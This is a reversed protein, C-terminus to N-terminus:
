CTADSAKLNLNATQEESQLVHSGHLYAVGAPNTTGPLTTLHCDNHMGSRVSKASSSRM